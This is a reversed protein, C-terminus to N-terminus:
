STIQCRIKICRLATKERKGRLVNSVEEKPDVYSYGSMGSCDSVNCLMLHQLFGEKDDQKSAEM